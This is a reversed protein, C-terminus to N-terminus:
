LSGKLFFVRKKRKWELHKYSPHNWNAQHDRSLGEGKLFRNDSEIRSSNGLFDGSPNNLPWKKQFPDLEHLEQM